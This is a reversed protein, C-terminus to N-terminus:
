KKIKYKKFTVGDRTDFRFYGGLKPIDNAENIVTRMAGDSLKWVVKNLVALM